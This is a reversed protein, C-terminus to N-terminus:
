PRTGLLRTFVLTGAFGLLVLVLPVILYSPRGVGQIVVLMTLLGLSSTLELGVLRQVADGRCALVLGPGIGGVLLAFAAM